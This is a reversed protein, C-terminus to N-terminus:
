AQPNIAIGTDRQAALVLSWHTTLFSRGRETTVNSAPM